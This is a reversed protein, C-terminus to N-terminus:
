NNKRDRREAKVGNPILDVLVNQQLDVLATFNYDIMGAGSAAILFPGWLYLSMLMRKAQDMDRRRRMNIEIEIPERLTPRPKAEVTGLLDLQEVQHDKKYFEAPFLMVKLIVDRGDIFKNAILGSCVISEPSNTSSAISTDSLDNLLTFKM